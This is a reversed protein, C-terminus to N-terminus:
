SLPHHPFESFKFNPGEFYDKPFYIMVKMDEQLSVLTFIDKAKLSLIPMHM